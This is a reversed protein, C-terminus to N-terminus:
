PLVCDFKMARPYKARRCYRDTASYVSLKLLNAYHIFARNIFFLCYESEFIDRFLMPQPCEFFLPGGVSYKKSAIKM